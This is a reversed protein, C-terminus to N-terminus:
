LVYDNRSKGLVRPDSFWEITAALGHRLGDIGALKPEWGIMTRARSNDSCLRGVESKLPRLRQPDESKLILEVGMLTAIEKATDAISIEFGTGLNITEGRSHSSASACLFGEVTDDVYTFDRTTHVSGLCVTHRDTLLQQIITPIVARQSQRPGYTNFPRLVTVPLGFSFFFSLALQDAGIKSAAYPSQGVLPHSESIPISQATGYVESTSTHIFCDVSAARAARLLNLTGQVNTAVYSDPAVYSYPIGILAALHYVVEVGHLAREVMAQDRIDGLIPKFSGRIETDSHDLWGLSGRSNYMCFATVSHGQSVLREVLHSGIFGDAGTVLIKAM